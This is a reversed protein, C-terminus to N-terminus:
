NSKIKITKPKSEKAKPMQVTLVGDKYTAKVKDPNVKETLTMTRTFTGSSRECRYYKVGEEKGNKKGELTITNEIVTLNLDEPRIGPVEATLILEDGNDYINVAPFSSRPMSRLGMAGNFLGFLQDMEDFTKNIDFMPFRKALMM